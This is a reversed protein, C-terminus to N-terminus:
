SAYSFDVETRIFGFLGQFSEAPLSDPELRLENQTM